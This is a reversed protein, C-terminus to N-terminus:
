TRSWKATSARAAIIDTTAEGGDISALLNSLRNLAWEPLNDIQTANTPLEVQLAPLTADSGADVKKNLTPEGGYFTVVEKGQLHQDM